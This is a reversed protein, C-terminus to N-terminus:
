RRKRRTRFYSVNGIIIFMIVVVHALTQPGMMVIAPTDVKAFRPYRRILESEYEAAGKVGGLLGLLQKPYYPYLQPASVASVGAGLPVDRPDGVYLVWEKAGPSGSGVALILDLDACSRIGDMIPLSDYPVGNVDTPFMKKFDTAIVNLVGVGGAKFGLSVWDVGDQKNPFEVKVITDISHAMLSQGTAWLSMCIVKLDRQLCHRLFANAMPGVEPAVAPDFDFSILVHSGPPLSEVKDFVNKVIPTAKEEFKLPFLIPATTAIAIFLFVVRRDVDRGSLSRIFLWVLGVSIIALSLIAGITALTVAPLIPLWNYM